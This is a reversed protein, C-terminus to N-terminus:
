CKLCILHLHMLVYNELIGIEEISLGALGNKLYKFIDESKYRKIIIDFATLVTNMLPRSDIKEKLDMFYPIDYNDFVIDIIGNYLEMDRTIVLIDKFRYGEEFILRKINRAVFQSEDYQNAADYLSLNFVKKNWTSSKKSANKQINWTSCKLIKM